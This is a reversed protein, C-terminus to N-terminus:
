ARLLPGLDGSSASVVAALAAIISGAKPVKVGGRDVVAIIFGPSQRGLGGGGEAAIIFRRGSDCASVVIFSHDNM